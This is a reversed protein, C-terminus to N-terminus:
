ALRTIKFHELGFGIVIEAVSAQTNWDWGRCDLDNFMYHCRWQWVKFGMVPLPPTVM